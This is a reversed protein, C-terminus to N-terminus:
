ESSKIQNESFLAGYFAECQEQVKRATDVLQIQRYLEECRRTSIHRIVNKIEPVAKHVVSFNRLGMGILMPVAVPDGAMEGCMSVPTNTTKGVDIVKKIIQLLAPHFHNFLHSIRENARDVALTYQILDNTGISFFDVEKAFSEALLAASPIEIMTGIKIDPNHRKGERELHQKAEQLVERFQYIEELSSVMPLLISLNGHINARLIAKLQPIFIERHDLCFRIARWGLFPNREPISVLEPLIKDGGVDLTRVVVQNPRITEAIELYNKTQEDESPLGNEGLFLGETRYLGIGQAGSKKVQDLEEVFEINAYVEIYEGDVTKAPEEALKLLDQEVILFAKQKQRYKRITTESPNVVVIGENGDVILTEGPKVANTIVETGVVAPVGLSRAIIATHTNKGGFNTCFGLINRHHFRITDTPSLDEAAIISSKRLKIDQSRGLMNKLILRKLNQIDFARDRFYEDSLQLFHEKKRRFIKFTAYAADFHKEEITQKVENLFIKDDLISIQTQLVELFEEGYNKETERYIKDLYERSQEIAKEFRQIEFPVRKRSVIRLEPAYTPESYIFVPGIAIGPSTPIGQVVINTKQEKHTLNKAM